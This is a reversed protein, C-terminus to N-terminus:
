EKNWPFDPEIIYSIMAKDLKKKQEMIGPAFDETLINDGKKLMAVGQLTTLNSMFCKLTKIKEENISNNPLLKIKYKTNDEYIPDIYTTALGWGCEPCEWVQSSSEIYYNMKHGCKECIM